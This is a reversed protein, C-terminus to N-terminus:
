LKLRRTKDTLEMGLVGELEKVAWWTKGLQVRITRMGVERGMKLNEGIDDLFVIEEPKISGLGNKEAFDSIRRVALEYIDRSPKRMGVDASAVYVDFFTRPNFLAQESKSSPDSTSSSREEKTYPHDPPFVVTNSLAAIIPRPSQARLRELTPFIFPDPHRSVEMMTWFLSEGDIFPPYDSASSTSQKPNTTSRKGSSNNQSHGFQSSFAIDESELSIPDGITTDEALKSFYPMGSSSTNPFNPFNSPSSSSGSSFRSSAAGQGQDTPSSDAPEAKLSTHDDLQTPNSVDKSKEKEIRFTSHFEKWASSNHLDANFGAFFEADMNIEGRELRQWHGNPSSYRIAFNIWSKPIHHQREYDLIAQM